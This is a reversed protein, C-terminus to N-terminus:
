YVHQIEIFQSFLSGFFADGLFGSVLYALAMHV